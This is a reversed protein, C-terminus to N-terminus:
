FPPDDDEPEVDPLLHSPAPDLPDAPPDTFRHGWVDDWDVAGDDRLREEFLGESKLNHTPRDLAILNTDDTPGDDQWERAHDIDALHAPTTSGPFRSRSDRIRVWRALDAPPAYVKRDMGLRAGTYPHTLVRIFSKAAGALDKATEMAIPGYGGLTAQETSRGLWALAPVTLILSVQVAKRTPVLVGDGETARQQLGENLLDVVIDHRLQAVTRHQPDTGHAAVAARHLADNIPVWVSALGEAVFAAGGDPGPELATNRREHTTRARKAATDDQLREREVRLDHQLRDSTVVLTAAKADYAPWCAADLGDAGAVVRQARSWSTGGAQFAAWTAPLRDRLTRGATVERAVQMPHTKTQLGFSRNFAQAGMGHPDGFSAGFRVRLDDLSRDAAVLLAAIRRAELHHQMANLQVAAHQAHIAADQSTEGALWEDSMSATSGFEAAFREAPPMEALDAEQVLLDWASVPQEILLEPPVEPMPGPGSADDLWPEDTADDFV